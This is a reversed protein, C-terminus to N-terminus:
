GGVSAIGLVPVDKAGPLHENTWMGAKPVTTTPVGCPDASCAILRHVPRWEVCVAVGEVPRSDDTDGVRRLDVVPHRASQRDLPALNGYM